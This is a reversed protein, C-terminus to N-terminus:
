LSYGRKEGESEGLLSGGRSVEDRGGGKGRKREALRGGEGRGGQRQLLNVLAKM